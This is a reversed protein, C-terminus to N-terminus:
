DPAVRLASEGVEDARHAGRAGDHAARTVELLLTRLHADDAQLRRLPRLNGADTAPRRFVQRFDEIRGSDVFDDVDALLVGLVGHAVEGPELVDTATYRGAGGYESREFQGLPHLIGDNDGDHAVTAVAVQRATHEGGGSIGKEE